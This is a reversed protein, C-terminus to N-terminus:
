QVSISLRNASPYDGASLQVPLAFGTVTDPVRVSVQIIGSVMGPAPGADRIEAIQGDIQVTLALLPAVSATRSSITGDPSVPVTQGSGTAYFSVISGPAAPHAWDNQQGDENVVGLGGGMGDFSFLGPAAPVVPVTLTNSPLGRYTVQVNTTSVSFAFPAMVSVQTSSVYLLPAPVGDFLVQTEALSTAVDGTDNVQLQAPLSTGLNAGFITIMEGPAVVQGLYSAANAVATTQPPSMNQQNGTLLGYIVLANSFTPVYISGNAVTPAVFKAFRGLGDREAQSDSSWLERSLDAADLAHLTGPLGSASMDATTLWVIGDSEGNASVALGVFLSSIPFESDVASDMRGNVVKIAKVSGFPEAVYVTSDSQRAWLAMDFMGWGNVKVAQISSTRGNQFHGMSNRPVLYLYGAKSGALILETNPILIAGSSGFDDDDDNFQGWDQPTFWDVISLQDRARGEHQLPATSFHLLSEGFASEGDYDGNGTVAYVDGNEDVVLGRGAQWISAGFGNPSTNIVGLQRQLNAADFSMLWGHWNGFDAHSGFAAYIVGNSLTLGPRQLHLAAEFRVTAMKERSRASGPVSAGIEVPGNMQESGDSLSLAHLRFVPTGNELTDTMVYIVTHSPDIVPTSLIGVEPLIDSFNFTASPISPGLNVRWLPTTSQPTDADIAYVSNKMTAVYVVNRTGKGDIQVNSVYLPQAYIIADVPFTGIKGFSSAKVNRPTLLSEQLNSNTRQNDYNATLVNVQGQAFCATLLSALVAMVGARRAFDTTDRVLEMFRSVM